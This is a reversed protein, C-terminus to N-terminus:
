PKYGTRWLEIVDEALEIDDTIGWLVLAMVFPDPLQHQKKWFLEENMTHQDNHHTPCLPLAWRDSSKEGRGRAPKAYFRNGASLHAAQVHLRRGCVLCPLRAIFELHSKQKERPRRQGRGGISFAEPHPNIRSGM